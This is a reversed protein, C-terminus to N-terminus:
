RRQWSFVSRQDRHYEANGPTQVAQHLADVGGDIAILVLQLDLEPLEHMRKRDGDCAWTSEVQDGHFHVARERPTCNYVGVSQFDTM